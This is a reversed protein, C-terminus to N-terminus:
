DYSVRPDVMAVCIDSLLNGILMLLCSIALTCMVLNSDRNELAQFGLLGM